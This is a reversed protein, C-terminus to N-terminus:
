EIEKLLPNKKGNTCYRTSEEGYAKRRVEKSTIGPPLPKVVVYMGHGVKEVYGAKRVFTNYSDLLSGPYYPQGLEEHM